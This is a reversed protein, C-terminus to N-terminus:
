LIFYQKMKKGCMRCLPPHATKDIKHKVSNTRIAQEQAACLMAEM